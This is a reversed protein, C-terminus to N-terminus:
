SPQQGCMLNAPVAKDIMKPYDLRLNAMIQIFDTKSKTLRPNFQREEQVSTVTFGKYDHAPYLKFHDPLTFIKSHVSDYLTASNGEQFDTRGCGRILLTDGTFALGNSDDVYTVCGNTHGPTSLVRLCVSSGITIVDGEIVRLDAQAGSAGSIVSLPVHVNTSSKEEELKARHLVNKIEGSGTIHDAHVHTNLM